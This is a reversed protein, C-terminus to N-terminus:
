TSATCTRFGSIWSSSTALVAPLIGGLASAAVSALILLLLVTDFGPRPQVFLLLATLLPPAFAAVVLGYLQRRRTSTTALGRTRAEEAAQESV